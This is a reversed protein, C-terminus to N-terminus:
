LKRMTEIENIVLITPKTNTTEAVQLEQSVIKLIDTLWTLADRFIM